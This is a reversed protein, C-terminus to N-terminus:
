LGSFLSKLKLFSWIIERRILCQNEFPCVKSLIKKQYKERNLKQNGLIMGSVHQAYLNLDAMSMRYFMINVPNYAGKKQM